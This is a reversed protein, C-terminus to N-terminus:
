RQRDTVTLQRFGGVGHHRGALNEAVPQLTTADIHAEQTSGLNVAEAVDVGGHDAIVMIRFHTQWASATSRLNCTRCFGYQDNELLGVTGEDVFQIEDGRNAM